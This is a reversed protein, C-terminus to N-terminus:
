GGCVVKKVRLVVSIPFKSCTAVRSRCPFEIRVLLFKSNSYRYSVLLCLFSPFVLVSARVRFGFDTGTVGVELAFQVTIYNHQTAYTNICLYSHTCHTIHITDHTTLLNRRAMM